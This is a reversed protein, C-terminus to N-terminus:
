PTPTAGAQEVTVMRYAPIGIPCDPEYELHVIVSGDAARPEYFGQATFGMGTEEVEITYSIVQITGEVAFSDPLPLNEAVGFMSEISAYEQVIAVVEVTREGTARWLGIGVGRADDSEVFRGDPGFIMRAPATGAVCASWDVEWAGIIVHDAGPYPEAEAPTAVETALVAAPIMVPAGDDPRGPGFRAYGVVLAVLVLAAFAFRSIPRYRHRPDTRAHVLPPRAILDAGPLPLASAHMTEETTNAAAVIRQRVRLRAAAQDPSTPTKALLDVVRATVEDVDPPRIPTEGRQTADWYRDLAARRRREDREM